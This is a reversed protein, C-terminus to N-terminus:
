CAKIEGSRNCKPCPRYRGSWVASPLTGKGKCTSCRKFPNRQRSIYAVVLYAVVLAILLAM